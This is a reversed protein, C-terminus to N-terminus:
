PIWCRRSEMPVLCAHPAYVYMCVFCGYMYIFKCLSFKYNHFSIHCKMGSKKPPPELCPKETYGQSDQFESQLGPQGWVWFDVQRQRGLAPILPMCWWVRSEYWKKFYLNIKHTYTHRCSHMDCTRLHRCFGSPPTIDGQAPTVPQQLSGLFLLNEYCSLWRKLWEVINKLRGRWWQPWSKVSNLRM